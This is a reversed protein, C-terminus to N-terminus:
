ERPDDPGMIGGGIRLRVANEYADRWLSEFPDGERPLQMIALHVWGLQAARVKVSLAGGRHHAGLVIEMNAGFTCMFRAMARQGAETVEVAHHGVDFWM